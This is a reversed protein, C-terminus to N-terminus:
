RWTAMKNISEIFTSTNLSINKTTIPVHATPHKYSQGAEIDSAPVNTDQYLHVLVAAYNHGDEFKAVKNCLSLRSYALAAKSANFEPLETHGPYIKVIDTSHYKGRKADIHGILTTINTVPNEIAFSFRSLDKIQPLATNLVHAGYGEAFVTLEGGSYSNFIKALDASINTPKALSWAGMEKLDKDNTYFLCFNRVGLRAAAREGAKDINSALGSIYLMRNVKDNENKKVPLEPIKVTDLNYRQQTAFYLGSKESSSRSSQRFNTIYVTPTRDGQGQTITYYVTLCGVEKTKVAANDTGQVQTDQALATLQEIKLVVDLGEQSKPNVATIFAVALDKHIKVPKGACGNATKPSFYVYDSPNIHSLSTSM